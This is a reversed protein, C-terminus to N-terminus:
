TGFHRYEDTEGDEDDLGFTRPGPNDQKLKKRFLLALLLGSVAGAVHGDWSVKPDLPFLGWVMSGYYMGVFLSALRLRRNGSIFGAAFVFFLVSYLVGSAGIHYFGPRAFFFMGAGTLVWSAALVPVAVKDYLTFLLGLLAFMAVLNSFLHSINGHVLPATFIGYWQSADRPHIGLATPNIWGRAQMGYCAAIAAVVLM